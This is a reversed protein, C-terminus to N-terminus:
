ERDQEQKEDQGVGLLVRSGVLAARKHPGCFFIWTATRARGVRVDICRRGRIAPANLLVQGRFDDAAFRPSSRRIAPKQTKM